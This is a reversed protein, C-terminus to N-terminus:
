TRSTEKSTERVNERPGQTPRLDLVWRDVDGVDLEAAGVVASVLEQQRPQGFALRYAVLERKLGELREVEKSYALLPVRREVACAGDFIWWPRLDSEGEGRGEEALGFMVGWLDEGAGWERVAAAGYAAAVNRRVAHGEYRHVRGERQELDVPNGPLNWHVIAHCWPHFDLGEQGISTSALVFPRYPSNFAERVAGERAVKKGDDSRLNGYRLAFKTRFRLTGMAVHGSETRLTDAQVPGPILALAEAMRTAVQLANADREGDKWSLQGWVQHFHEDLVAQLCGAIAYRLTARWYPVGERRVVGMATPQNLLTRFGEAVRAAGRQRVVESCRSAALSRAALIGPAGLALETVVEALDEPKRGLREEKALVKQLLEVHDGFRTDDGAAGEAELGEDAAAPAELSWRELFEAGIGRERDLLAPAAWYWREDPKGEGDELEALLSEVRERVACLRDKAGANWAALPSAEDALTLSPYQLALATMGTLRGKSESFRLLGRHKKHLTFYTADGEPMGALMQRDAEYSLAVSLVDPVVHWASFVLAKTFRVNKEFAGALPWYPLTPPVWLLKWQEDGVLDEMVARLRANAPDIPQFRRVQGKRLTTGEHRRVVAHVEEDDLRKELERKLKYTRMFQPLYPASKWLEMPDRAGLARSLEDVFMWQKLDEPRLRAPCKPEEMMAQRDKTEAVRETRVMVTRLAAQVKERAPGIASGDGRLAAHIAKRYGRLEQEFGAIRRGDEEMLFKTTELFDRYHDDESDEFDTSYMRYPTASLLLVRAREGEPTDYNWMSRALNAMEDEEHLLHRFRQFEDLIILDPELKEVCSRALLMRLDGIVANRVARHEVPWQERYYGFMEVAAKVRERLAKQGPQRYAKEFGQVLTADLEGKAARLENKWRTKGVNGQLLNRVGATDGVLNALLGHLVVREDVMGARSKLDFSTGPTFSVFNVRHSDLDELERPLLTLRTALAHKAADGVALKRLNQQAIAVNSCIYVIDIRGTSEWLHDIAKAVVGRAVLTKGLGVEDAVLFRTSPSPGYLRDFVYDVTKRQFGKLPELLKDVDPREGTRM